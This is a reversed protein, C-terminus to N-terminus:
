AGRGTGEQAPFRERLLHLLKNAEPRKDFCLPEYIAIEGLHPHPFIVPRQLEGGRRHWAQPDLSYQLQFVEVSPEHVIRWPRSSYDRKEVLCEQWFRPGYWQVYDNAWDALQVAEHTEPPLKTLNM